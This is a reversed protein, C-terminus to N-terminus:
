NRISKTPIFKIGKNKNSGVTQIKDIQKININVPVNNSKHKNLYDTYKMIVENTEDLNTSELDESINSQKSETSESHETSESCGTNCPAMINPDFLNYATDFDILPKGLRINVSNHLSWIWKFM